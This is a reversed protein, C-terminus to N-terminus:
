LVGTAWPMPTTNRPDCASKSGCKIRCLQAWSSRSAGNADVFRKGFRDIFRVPPGDVRLVGPVGPHRGNIWM